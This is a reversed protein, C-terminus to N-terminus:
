KQHNHKELLCIYVRRFINRFVAGMNPFYAYVTTSYKGSDITILYSLTTPRETTRRLDPEPPYIDPIAFTNNLTLLQLNNRKM